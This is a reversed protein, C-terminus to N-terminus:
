SPVEMRRRFEALFDRPTSWFIEVDNDHFYSQLYEQAAEPDITENEPRLQVGVHTAVGKKNYGLFSKIGQFVVRFDWDDLRYGLFMLSSAVLHGEVIAPVAARQAVWNTLWEFHDDETLVLSNWKDLRGFLHYVWPREVTPEQDTDAVKWAVRDTWPFCMTVPTKKPECALLAEQLLDTWGTTVYVEVPLEALVRYPDDSNRERLIRGAEVITKEPSGEIISSPISDFLDGEQSKEKRDRFEDRLYNALYMSVMNESHRVRLYQAVQALNGQSQAVIPLQRRRVWRRAIEERSGLIGDALGPGLVPTLQHNPVTDRLEQWTAGFDGTRTLSHYALGSRLRSFLVPVWWDPRERIANRAAAMAQDVAADQAFRQFFAPSFLEASAETINGQMAVVAGVGAGALRPGLAALVGGDDSRPEGGDGASQCSILLALTPKRELSRIREALQAANVIDATGGPTELVLIPDDHDDMAGHCALYLIDFGGQFDDISQMIAELTARRRGFLEVCRYDALARRARGAERGVDIPTLPRRRPPPAFDEVNTPSAVVILARTEHVPRARLPRWNADVLYRSLLINSITAIPQDENPSRLLEWHVAHFRDPGDIHIRFHVPSESSADIAWGFFKAVEESSEFVMRTLTRGYEDPDDELQRLESTDIKLPRRPHSPRDISDSDSYRLSVDLAEQAKDWELGFEFDVSEASM